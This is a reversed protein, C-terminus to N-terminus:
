IHQQVLGCCVKKAMTPMLEKGFDKQFFSKFQKFDFVVYLTDGGLTNRVLHMLHYQQTKQVVHSM